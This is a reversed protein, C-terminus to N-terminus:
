LEGSDSIHSCLGFLATHEGDYFLIQSSLEAIKTDSKACEKDV